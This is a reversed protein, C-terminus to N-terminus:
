FYYAFGLSAVQKSVETRLDITATITEDFPVDVFTATTSQHLKGYYTYIYTLQLSLRSCLMQEFGIGGRIGVRTKERKFRAADSINLFTSTEQALTNFNLRIKNVAGGVLGFLMSRSCFVWGPKFDFTFEARQLKTYLNFQFLETVGSELETALLVLRPKGDSFNGGLRGGLYLSGCQRGWGGFVEGWPNVRCSEAHIAFTQKDTLEGRKIAESVAFRHKARPTAVGLSGGLYFGDFCGCGNGWFGFLSTSCFLALVLLTGKKM